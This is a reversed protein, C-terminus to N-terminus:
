PDMLPVQVCHSGGIRRLGRVVEKLSDGTPFRIYMPVLKQVTARCTENIIQCVTCHAVGFLHAVTCYQGPTALVWLTIAVRRETSISKRMRTNQKQILPRLQDCLYNFTDRSMRFNEICDQQGFTGLVVREWWECSRSCIWLSRPNPVFFEACLVLVTSMALLLVANRRATTRKTNSVLGRIVKERKRLLLFRFVSSQMHSAM